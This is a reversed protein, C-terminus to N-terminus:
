EIQELANPHAYGDSFDEKEIKILARALIDELCNNGIISFLAKGSDGSYSIVNEGESHKALNLCYRKRKVKVEKPLRNWLETFNPAPFSKGLCIRCDKVRYGGITYVDPSFEFKIKAETLQKAMEFTIM